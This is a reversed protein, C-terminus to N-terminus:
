SNVFVEKPLGHLFGSPLSTLVVMDGPKPKESTGM